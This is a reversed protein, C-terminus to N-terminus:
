TKGVGPALFGAAAYALAIVNCRLCAIWVM